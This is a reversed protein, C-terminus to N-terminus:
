ALRQIDAIARRTDKLTVEDSDRIYASLLAKDCVNNIIRPIGGAYRHIRWIAWSSFRPRGKAGCLTLRHQIYHHTQALSLPKLECFVLVRQRLQRLERRRLKEKLEPQGILLIQLLKRSNTELNSILRLQELTDFSLNQAEDVILVIDRGQAVKALLTDNLCALLDAHGQARSDGGLETLICRILDSESMRPNLILATDTHGNDLDALLARCLTSKGTGVEGCLVIFGKKEAIGYRLYSLAEEHSPSLYLFRPDPTVHFPADGLGYFEKYM